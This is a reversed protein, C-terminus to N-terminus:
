SVGANSIDNITRICLSNGLKLLVREPIVFVIYIQM